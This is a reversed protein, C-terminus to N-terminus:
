IKHKKNFTYYLSIDHYLINKSHENEKNLEFWATLMTYELSAKNLANQENGSTFYVNQKPVISHNNALTTLYDTLGNYSESQLTVQNQCLYNLRTEEVKVYTDIPSPMAPSLFYYLQNSIHYFVLGCGNNALISAFLLASNYNHINKFFDSSLPHNKKFLFKLEDPFLLPQELNIAGKQYCLTFINLEQGTCESAFYFASYAECVINITEINLEIPFTESYSLAEKYTPTQQM